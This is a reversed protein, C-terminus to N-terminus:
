LGAFFNVISPWIEIIWLGLQKILEIPAWVLVIIPSLIATLFLAIGQWLNFSLEEDEQVADSPEAEAFAPLSFTSILVAILIFLSIFKIVHKKKM